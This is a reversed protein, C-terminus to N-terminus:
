LTQVPSKKEDRLCEALAASVASPLTKQDVASICTMVFKGAHSQPAQEYLANAKNSHTPIRGSHSRYIGLLGSVTVRLEGDKTPGNAVALGADLAERLEEADFEDINLVLRGQQRSAIRGMVTFVAFGADGGLDRISEDILARGLRDNPTLRDLSIRIAKLSRNQEAVTPTLSKQARAARHTNLVLDLESRGQGKLAPGVEKWLLEPAGRLDAIHVGDQGIATRLTRAM